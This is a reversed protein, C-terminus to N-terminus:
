VSICMERSEMFKVCSNFLSSFAFWDGSDKRFMVMYTSPSEPIAFFKIKICLGCGSKISIKCKSLNTTVDLKKWNMMDVCDIVANGIEALSDSKCVMSWRSFAYLPDSPKEPAKVGCPFRASCKNMPTDVSVDNGMREASFHTMNHLLLGGRHFSVSYDSYFDTIQPPGEDM